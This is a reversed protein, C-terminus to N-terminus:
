SINLMRKRGDGREQGNRVHRPQPEVGERPM